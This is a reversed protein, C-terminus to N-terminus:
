FYSNINKLSSSSTIEDQRVFASWSPCCEIANGQRPEPLSLYGGSETAAINKLVTMVNASLPGVEKCFTTM